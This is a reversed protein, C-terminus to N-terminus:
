LLSIQKNLYVLRKEFEVKEAKEEASEAQETWYEKLYNLVYVCRAQLDNNNSHVEALKEIASFARKPHHYIAYRGIFILGYNRWEEESSLVSNALVELDNQEGVTALVQWCALYMESRPKNALTKRALALSKGTNFDAMALLAESNVEYSKAQWGAEFIKTENVKYVDALASIAAARVSFASDNEALRKVDKQVKNLGSESLASLMNLGELRLYPSKDKLAIGAVTARLNDNQTEALRIVAERRDLMLSSNDFQNLLFSDSSLDEKECLLMKDADFSVWTPAGSSVDFSFTQEQQNVVVKYVQVEKKSHVAIKVPLIYL